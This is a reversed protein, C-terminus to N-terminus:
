QYRTARYDVNPGYRSVAKNEAEAEKSEKSSLEQSKSVSDLLALNTNTMSDFLRKRSHM